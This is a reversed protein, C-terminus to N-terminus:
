GPVFLKLTNDLFPFLFAFVLVSVLIEIIYRKRKQENTWANYMSLILFLSEAIITTRPFSELYFFDNFIKSKLILGQNTIQNIWSLFNLSTNSEVFFHNQSRKLSDFLYSLWLLIILILLFIRVGNILKTM